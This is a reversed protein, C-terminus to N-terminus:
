LKLNRLKPDTIDKIIDDKPFDQILHKLIHAMSWLADELTLKLHDKHTRLGELLERCYSQVAPYVPNQKKAEINALM